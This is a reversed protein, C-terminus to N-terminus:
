AALGMEAAQRRSAEFKAMQEVLAREFKFANFGRDANLRMRAAVHVAPAILNFGTRMLLNALRKARFAEILCRFRVLVALRQQPDDGMRVRLLADVGSLEDKTIGLLMALGRGTDVMHQMALALMQPSVMPVDSLNLTTPTTM